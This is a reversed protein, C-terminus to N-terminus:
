SSAGTSPMAIPLPGVPSPSSPQTPTRDTEKELLWEMLDQLDELTIPDEERQRLAQYREGDATVLMSTIIEDIVKITDAASTETTIDDYISLVEPRVGVRVEFTEGGITFSRDREAREKRKQDFDKM